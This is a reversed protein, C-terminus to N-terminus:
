KSDEREHEEYAQTFRNWVKYAGCECEGLGPIDGYIFLHQKHRIM